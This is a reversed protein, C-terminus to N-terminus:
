PQPIGPDDGVLLRLADYFKKLNEPSDAAEAARPEAMCTRMALKMQLALGGKRKAFAYYQVLRDGV